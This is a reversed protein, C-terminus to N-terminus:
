RNRSDDARGSRGSSALIGQVTQALVLKGESGKACHRIQPRFGVPKGRVTGRRHKSRDLHGIAPITQRAAVWGPRRRGPPISFSRGRKARIPVIKRSYGMSVRKFVAWGDCESFEADTFLALGLCAATSKVLLGAFQSEVGEDEVSGWTGFWTREGKM